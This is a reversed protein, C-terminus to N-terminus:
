EEEEEPVVLPPASPGLPKPVDIQSLRLLEGVGTLHGAVTHLLRLLVTKDNEVVALFEEASFRLFKTPETATLNLQRPENLIIALDGILRGPEIQSVHHPEGFDDHWWLDASGSLCLYAADAREGMSFVRQDPEADYWQAAFALLRQNRADLSGFLENRALVQLKRRLDDSSSDDELAADLEVVGDIRGNRIVVHMDFDEPAAFKDNLYIQTSQPLLDSLRDRIDSQSKADQGAMLQNFVLVDPRKIAARGFALREQFIAPLNAGGITTKVDFLLASVLQQLGHEELVETVLDQVLDGQLGAMASVRGYLANELITLRPFYTEPTVAIFLDNVKARLTEGNTRRIHLIEKKFSEPFAPGIQEATFAFPVTLLLAFEDPSLAEDGAERRRGAIDVLQEYLTEEIGLATFLPHGTGDMGFTQHLTEVLTQSIAIAQEGLGQDIIMALFSREAVLSHPSINHAPSAFMLNGGLPVSPNFFTPDFRNVVKGLGKAKLKKHVEGRLSVIRRALEPHMADDMRSNMLREFLLESTGLAQTIKFWWGLIDDDTSLDAIGPDLWDARLTDRSNGARRAEITERDSHEPDWLVTKPSTRLPMLMNDGITGQFLYPSSCAYGIRAAIVSHHVGSLDNGAVTVKGRIPNIERTLVEALATRESQSFVEIAVRSGAPIHLTLDELLNTGGADRVWVKDLHIDGRMHPIEDPEGEFLAEDIMGKPAFKEIVVEWRVAMDQTQNYYTLLEKWPSSLDKYAALAAVLAGVTIEGKIALYGGVAYFFFPTLQTIFNNLFKMFFKKQYIRFRIDFLRGLTATFGALRFRWGGNTRLDTIGAATEGIESSLQRVEKIRAKNLVNIQRQLLPILWAQLPILAVGALGFWPSQVFLFLLIILMQGLQFVPQAVADGMLGGMPEAESTVMSVLEGQSTDQFYSRPFRMMREILKYRFRRLLREAVVGKKTNLHMKMLGHVFVSTLYAFCLALLFQVQSLEYGLVDIVATSSGIADNIIRKPLELTVYLFPFTVLTFVLLAIQDRRSYKWIFSFISREMRQEKMPFAWKRVGSYLRGLYASLTILVVHCPDDISRHGQLLGRLWRNRHFHKVSLRSIDVFARKSLDL